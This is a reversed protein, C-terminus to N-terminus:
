RQELWNLSAVAKKNATACAIAITITDSTTGMSSRGIQYSAQDDFAQGGNSLRPIFGADLVDGGSVATATINYQTFANANPHDVFSGGTLTANRLVRYFIDVNDITGLQFSHPIVVGQLATSKLQISVIPTFTNASGTDTGAIANAINCPVGSKESLGDSVLSNSGQYLHFATATQGGTTNKIECRIPLFPTKTWPNNLVNADYFTHITICQGNIIYQFRVAGSGYWEYDIQILQQADPNATIGSPGTGDLKDGNWSARGVRQLTPTGGTNAICCFYDGSGDDEFYAGNTGDYLGFRRRIGAVPYQLRIAFSLISPRGAIYRMVCKTQRVVESNLTNTVALDIGSIAALHTSTGGNATSEDWVDTEKGYQFTNTFSTSFNAVRLRGKSNYNARPDQAAVGSTLTGKVGNILELVYQRFKATSLLGQYDNAFSM